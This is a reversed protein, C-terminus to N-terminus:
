RVGDIQDVVRQMRKLGKQVAVRQVENEKMDFAKKRVITGAEVNQRNKEAKEMYEVIKIQRKNAKGLAGFVTKNGKLYRMYTNNDQMASDAAAIYGEACDTYLTKIGEDTNNWKRYQELSRINSKYLDLTQVHVKQLAVYHTTVTDFAEVYRQMLTDSVYYKQQVLLGSWKKVEDDYSDHMNLRETAEKRIMSDEKNLSVVLSDLLTSSAVIEGKVQMSQVNAQKKLEAIRSERAKVSDLIVLLEPADTKKKMKATQVEDIKRAEVKKIRTAIGVQVKKARVGKSDSAKAYKKTQALLRKDDTKIRRIHQKAVMGKARNKQKLKSYEAPFSKKQDKIHDLSKKLENKADKLMLDPSSVLTDSVARDILSLARYNNKLSLILPFRNNFAYARDAYEFVKQKEDLTAIKDLRPDSQRPKSYLANFAKVSSDGAEFVVVPMATDTLQWLPDSPLHKLRFVEPDQMFYDPNYKYRFKLSRASVRGHRFVINYLRVIFAEQQYLGGAGWTADVLQWKGNIRVANWEHRPIYLEDGNDFIWDKAYGEINVAQLGAARCLETYLMAYGDCVAKRNKLALVAKDGDAKPFKRLAKVDYAINHTVWNYIANAKQQEGAHDLCIDAALAMYDTGYKGTAELGISTDTQAHLMEARMLLLLMVVCLVRGM